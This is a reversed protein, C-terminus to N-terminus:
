FDVELIALEGPAATISRWRANALAEHDATNVAAFSGLSALPPSGGPNQFRVFVGLNLDTVTDEAIVWIRGKRLCGVAEDELFHGFTAGQTLEKIREGLAVGTVLGVNTIETAADPLKVQDIPDGVTHVCLKGYPIFPTATEKAIRSVVDVVRSSDVKFGERAQEPFNDYQLQM